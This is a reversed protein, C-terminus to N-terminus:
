ANIVECSDCVTGQTKADDLERGYQRYQTQLGPEPIEIGAHESGEANEPRCASGQSRKM